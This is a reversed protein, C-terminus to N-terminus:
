WIVKHVHDGRASCPKIYEDRTSSQATGGIVHVYQSINEKHYIGYLCIVSSTETILCPLEIGM